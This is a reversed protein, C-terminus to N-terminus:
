PLRAVRFGFSSSRYDSDFRNRFAARVYEPPTFWSGGRLVHLRCDGAMRASGDLPAQEYADNWCDAVWEFVNGIMDHIGFANAQFSGVPATHIFNDRCDFITWGPYTAGTTLDAVNASECIQTPDVSEARNNAIGARAAYEWESASLLRYKRGTKDALWRLYAQTDNWSICTVPHSDDQEYGPSRWSRRDDMEWSGNYTNCGNGEHGTDAAFRAFAARTIEHRSVALAYDIAVLQGHGENAERDKEMALSGQIFQGAPIVVMEPCTDCDRFVTGPLGATPQIRERVFPLMFWAVIALGAVAVLLTAPIIWKKGRQATHVTSSAINARQPDRQAPSQSDVRQEEVPTAFAQNLATLFDGATQYRDEARKACAKAVLADLSGPVTPKLHSPPSLDSHIVKYIVSAFSSGTFAREGTLLEFLVIGASYLDSRLDIAEGLLQEPSMYGPTGLITGTRTLDSSEIRAIGFDMVKVTGTNDLMINGPKIDRHIVGMRHSYDLASLVSTLILQIDALTFRYKQKLLDVLTQGEVYQMAIFARGADEGYEYIGVINQHNLNGAAQAERHFRQAIDDDPPETFGLHITKLAVFRRIMPDFAKYVVGMAGKGLPAVIDYKGIKKQSAEM